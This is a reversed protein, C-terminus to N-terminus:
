AKQSQIIEELRFCLFFRTSKLARTKAIAVSAAPM